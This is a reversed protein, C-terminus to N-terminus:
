MECRQDLYDDPELSIRKINWRGGFWKNWDSLYDDYYKYYNIYKM